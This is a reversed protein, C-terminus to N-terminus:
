KCIFVDAQEGTFHAREISVALTQDRDAVYVYAAGDALAILFGSQTEVTVKPRRGDYVTKWPAAVALAQLIVLVSCLVRGANAVSSTLSGLWPSQLLRWLLVVLALLVLSALPMYADRDSGSLCIPTPAEPPLLVNWVSRFMLHFVLFGALGLGSLAVVRGDTAPSSTKPRLSTLLRRLRGGLIVNVFELISLLGFVFLSLVTTALVIRGGLASLNSFSMTSGFPVAMRIEWAVSTVFGLVAATGIAGAACLAVIEAHEKLSGSDAM